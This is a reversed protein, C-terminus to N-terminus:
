LSGHCYCDSELAFAGADVRIVLDDYGVLAARAFALEDLWGTVNGDHDVYGGALSSGMAIGLMHSLFSAESITLSASWIVLAGYAVLILNPILESLYFGSLADSRQVRMGTGPRALDPTFFGIIREVFGNKENERMRDAM